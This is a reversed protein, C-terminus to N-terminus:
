NFDGYFFHVQDPANINKKKTGKNRFFIKLMRNM